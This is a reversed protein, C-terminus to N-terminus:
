RGVIQHWQLSIFQSRTNVLTNPYFSGYPQLKLRTTFIPSTVDVRFGDSVAESYYGALGILISSDM